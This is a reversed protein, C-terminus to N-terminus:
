EGYDAYTTYVIRWVGDQWYASVVRDCDAPLDLPEDLDPSPTKVTLTKLLRYM